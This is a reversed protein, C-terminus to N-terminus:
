RNIIKNYIKAKTLVATQNVGAYDCLEKLKEKPKEKIVAEDLKKLAEERTLKGMRVLVSLEPLIHPRGEACQYIYKAAQQVKCDYHNYTKPPRWKTNNILYDVIEAENYDHYLFYPVFERFNGKDLDGLAAKRIEEFLGKDAKAELEQFLKTYEEDLDIQDIDKLGLKVFVSFMDKDYYRFMQEPSRGHVCMGADAKSAYGIMSAYGVYSCAICPVLFHKMSYHYVRQLLEQEYNIYEHEVGYDSVLHNINKKAADTLFGNNMTFAKVKLHYKKVLQDLVFVSDKGGSIGVVADYEHKGKVKKIRSQFLEELKKYDTVEAKIKDYERCYNCIRNKDFSLNRVSEDNICRKCRM